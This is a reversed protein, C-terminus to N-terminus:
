IYATSHFITWRATPMVSRQPDSISIPLSSRTPPRKPSLGSTVRQTHEVDHLLAIGDVAEGVELAAGDKGGAFARRGLVDQAIQETIFNAEVSIMAVKEGNGGEVVIAKAYIKDKIDTALRENFYGPM